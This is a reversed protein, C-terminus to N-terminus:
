SDNKPSYGFAAAWSGLTLSICVVLTMIKVIARGLDCWSYGGFSSFDIHIALGEPALGGFTGLDAHCVFCDTGTGSPLLVNQVYRAAESSDMMTSDVDIKVSDKRTKVSDLRARMSDLAQRISPLDISDNADKISKRASDEAPTRALPTTDLPPVAALPVTDSESDFFFKWINKLIGWELNWGTEFPTGGSMCGHAEPILACSKPDSGALCENFRACVSRKSSDPLNATIETLKKGVYSESQASDTYYGSFWHKVLSDRSASVTDTQSEIAAKIDRLLPNYTTDHGDQLLSDSHLYDSIERLIHAASDASQSTRTAIPLSRNQFSTLDNRLGYTERWANFTNDDVNKVGGAMDVVYPLLGGRQVNGNHVTDIIALLIPTYDTNDGDGSGSGSSTGGGGGGSGSSDGSSGSSTGGGGSGSSTGSSASSSLPPLRPPDCQLSPREPCTGVYIAGAVYQTSSPRCKLHRGDACHYYCENGSTTGVGSRRCPPRGTSDKPVDCDSAGDPCFGWDQCTGALATTQTCVGAVCAYMLARNPSGFGGAEAGGSNQCHYTTDADICRCNQSDWVVASGRRVCSVSDSQCKTNCTIRGARVNGGSCRGGLSVCNSIGRAGCYDVCQNYGSSGSACASCPDGSGSCYNCGNGYGTLTSWSESCQAWSSVSGFVLLALFSLVPVFAM